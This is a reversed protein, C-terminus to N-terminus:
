TGVDCSEEWNVTDVLQEPASGEGLVFHGDLYTTHVLHSIIIVHQQINTQNKIKKLANQGGANDKHADELIPDIALETLCGGGDM